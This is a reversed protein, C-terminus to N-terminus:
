WHPPEHFPNRTATDFVLHTLEHPSWWGGVWPKDHSPVAGINAFM